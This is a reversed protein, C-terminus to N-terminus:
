LLSRIFFILILVYGAALPVAKAYFLGTTVVTLAKGLDVVEPDKGSKLEAQGAKEASSYALNLFTVRLFLQTLDLALALSLAAGAIFLMNSPRDSGPEQFFPGAFLWVVALGAVALTRAQTSATVSAERRVEDLKSLKM